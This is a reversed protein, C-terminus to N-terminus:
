HVTDYGEASTFMASVAANKAFFFLFFFNLLNLPNLALLISTECTEEEMM